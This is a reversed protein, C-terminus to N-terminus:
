AKYPTLYISRADKAHSAPQLLVVCFDAGLYPLILIYKYINIYIYTCIYIYIFIYLYNYM